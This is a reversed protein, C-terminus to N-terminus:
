KSTIECVGVLMLRRQPSEGSLVPTRAVSPTNSILATTLSFSPTASNPNFLTNNWPSPFLWPFVRGGGIAKACRSYVLSHISDANLLTTFYDIITYSLDDLTYQSMEASRIM